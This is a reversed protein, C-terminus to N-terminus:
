ALDRAGRSSFSKQDLTNYKYHVSPYSSLKRQIKMFLDQMRSLLLSDVISLNGRESYSLPIAVNQVPKSDLTELHWTCMSQEPRLIFVLGKDTGTGSANPLLMQSLSLVTVM